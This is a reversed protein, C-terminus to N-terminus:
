STPRRSRSPSLTEANFFHYQISSSERQKAGVVSVRCWFANLGRDLRPDFGFFRFCGLFSVNGGSENPVSVCQLEMHRNSLVNVCPKRTRASSMSARVDPFDRWMHMPARVRWVGIRTSTREAFVSLHLHATQTPVYFRVFFPRGRSAM